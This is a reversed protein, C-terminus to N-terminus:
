MRCGNPQKNIRMNNLIEFYTVCTERPLLTLVLKTGIQSWKPSVPLLCKIFVIKQMFISIPINSIDIKGFKLLDQANKIKPDIQAWCTIDWLFLKQCWSQSRSTQFVLQSFNWYIRLVKLKPVFKPMVPSLYKMFIIKSIAHAILLQNYAM